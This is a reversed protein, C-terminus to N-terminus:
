TLVVFARLVARVAAPNLLYMNGKALIGVSPLSQGVIEAIILLLSLSNTKVEILVLCDVSPM